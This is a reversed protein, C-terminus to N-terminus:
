IFQISEDRWMCSTTIYYTGKPINTVAQGLYNGNQSFALTGNDLDLYM